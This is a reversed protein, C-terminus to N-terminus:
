RWLLSAAVGCAIAIGYPFRLRAADSPEATIGPLRGTTCLVYTRMTWRATMSRLAAPGGAALLVAMGGIGGAILICIAAALTGFPGLFTGAAALAKVDGAGTGGLLYMPLFLGLGVLLGEGAAFFGAAGQTIAGLLLGLVAASVTLANPIRQRRYDVVAVLAVYILLLTAPVYHM